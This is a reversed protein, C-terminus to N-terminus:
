KFHSELLAQIEEKMKVGRLACYSKIQRHLNSPIDITFRTLEEKDGFNTKSDSTKEVTIKKGASVWEDASKSLEKASKRPSSGFTVKKSM